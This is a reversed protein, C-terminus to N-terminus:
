VVKLRHRPKHRSKAVAEMADAVESDLVHAYRTTTKISAHGLMKQVLRLNGTERLVKTAVDHRYDHFRFGVVGSRKRMRRWETQVGGYTLPRRVNDVISLARQPLYTFVFDPHHGQLPWIIDRVTPTISVVIRKGGKGLKTIQGTGFNVESWRLFCEALRWGTVQAFAFFPAYDARMAADLKDAEDDSLERVREVPVPLLHKSWRPEHQFRVGWLKCRTFLKRLTTTTHNVTHPSVVKSLRDFTGRGRRWAVMRAVDDDTIETILKDKGFYDLVLGLWGWLNTGALHQGHETWYRSAIDHLRLSTKAAEIQAVYGKAREREAAEVKEAERRNRAKTSGCFRHGRCWFDYHWYPSRPRRFLSV